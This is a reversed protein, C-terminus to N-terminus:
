LSVSSATAHAGPRTFDGVCLNNGAADTTGIVDSLVPLQLGLSIPRGVVCIFDRRHSCVPDPRIGAFLVRLIEFIRTVLFDIPSKRDEAGPLDSFGSRAYDVRSLHELAMGVYFM